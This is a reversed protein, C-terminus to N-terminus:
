GSVRITAQPYKDPNELMDILGEKSFVNVNLHHGGNDKFYGDLLM